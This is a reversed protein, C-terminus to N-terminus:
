AQERLSAQVLEEVERALDAAIWIMRDRRMEGAEEFWGNGSGYCCWLLTTLQSSKIELLDRAEDGSLCAYRSPRTRRFKPTPRRAMIRVAM